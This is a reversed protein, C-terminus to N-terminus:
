WKSPESEAERDLTETESEARHEALIGGVAGFVLPYVLGLFIAPIGAPSATIPGNVADATVIFAVVVFLPVYGVAVSAGANRPGNAGSVTGTKVVLYGAGVLLLPPLLYLVLLSGGVETLLNQNTLRGLGNMADATPLSTPVFHANYFLWGSVVWQPPTSGFIQGLPTADLYEGPVELAMVTGVRGATAGLTVLYGVVYAVIGAPAARRLPLHTFSM